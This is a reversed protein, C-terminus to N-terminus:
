SSKLIRMVSLAIARALLPPVANGVQRFGHWKTVHFRHWDPFSQLRAGERVTIVRPKEPHIPRPSSYSGRDSPTGARLTNAVDDWRLRHLRSVPLTEGPPTARIRKTLIPGHITRRCGTCIDRRWSEPTIYAFENRGLEGRMIKAYMSIPPRTYPTEDSKVLYDYRDVDPLDGIADRVTATIPLLEQLLELSSNRRKLDRPSLHTPLPYSFQRNLDKRVGVIFLRRRDQPVGYHAANLIRIPLSINYGAQNFRKVLTSLFRQGHASLMGPVNEMVFAKPRIERVIREFDFVLNSRPDKEDRLGILSFGQCPPGGCIVDVNRANISSLIDKGSIRKIDTLIVETQPFNQKLCQACTEDNDLAAVSKFGALEFGLAMGGAGAFLDIVTPAVRRRNQNRPMSSNAARETANTLLAERHTRLMNKLGM